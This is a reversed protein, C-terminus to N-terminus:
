EKSFLVALKRAQACRVAFEEDRHLDALARLVDQPKSRAAAVLTKANHRLEDGVLEYAWERAHAMLRPLEDLLVSARVTSPAEQLIGVVEEQTGYDPESSFTKMLVAATHEDLKTPVRDLLEAFRLADEKSGHGKSAKLLQEEWKGDM